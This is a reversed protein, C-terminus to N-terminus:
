KFKNIIHNLYETTENTLVNSEIIVTELIETNNLIIPQILKTNALILGDSGTNQNLSLLVLCIILGLILLILGFVALGKSKNFNNRNLLKYGKLVRDRGQEWERVENELETLGMM